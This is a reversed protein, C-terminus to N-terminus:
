SNKDNNRLFNFMLGAHARPRCPSHPPEDSRACRTLSGRRGVSASKCRRYSNRVTSHRDGRKGAAATVKSSLRAVDAHETAKIARLTRPVATCGQPTFRQPHEAGAAGSPNTPKRSRKVRCGPAARSHSDCPLRRHEDTGAARKHQLSQQRAGSAHTPTHARCAHTLTSAHDSGALPVAPAAM